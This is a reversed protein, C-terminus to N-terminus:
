AVETITIITAKKGHQYTVPQLHLWTDSDDKLIGIQVLGDLLSKFISDPDKKRGRADNVLCVQISRKGSAKPIDKLYHRLIDCDGRKFRRAKSWHVRILENVTHPHFDPITVKYEKM